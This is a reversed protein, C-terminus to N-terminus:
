RHGSLSVRVTLTSICTRHVIISVPFTRTSLVSIQRISTPFSRPSRKSCMMWSQRCSILIPYARYYTISRVKKVVLTDELDSYLDAELDFLFGVVKKKAPVQMCIIIYPETKAKIKKLMSSFGNEDQVPLWPGSAPKLWHWKFSNIILNSPEVALKKAM